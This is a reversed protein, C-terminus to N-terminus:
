PAARSWRGGAPSLAPSPAPGTTTFTVIGWGLLVNDPRRVSYLFTDVRPYSEAPPAVLGDVRWLDASVRSLPFREGTSLLDLDVRTVLNVFDERVRVEFAVATGAPGSTPIMTGDAVVRAPDFIHYTDATRQTRALLDVRVAPESTDILRVRLWWGYLLFALDTRVDNVSQQLSRGRSLGAVVRVATAEAMPQNVVDSWGTVAGAGMRHLAGPLTEADGADSASESANLYLFTEDFDGGTAEIWEGSVGYFVGDATSFQGVAAYGARSAGHLAVDADRGARTGTVLMTGAPTGDRGVADAAGHTSVYVVDYESLFSGRFRDLGAEEDEFVEVFFGALRLPVAIADLDEGFERQFPALIVARTGPPYVAAQAPAAPSLAGVARGPRLAVSPNGRTSVFLRPDTRRALPVNLWAGDRQRLRVATGTANIRAERVGDIELLSAEVDRTDLYDGAAVAAAVLEEFRTEAGAAISATVEAASGVAGPDDPFGTPSDGCAALALLAACALARAHSPM